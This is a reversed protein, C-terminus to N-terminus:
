MKELNSRAKYDQVTLRGCGELINKRVNFNQSFKSLFLNDQNAVFTVPLHRVYYSKCYKYTTHKKSSEAVQIREFISEIGIKYGM